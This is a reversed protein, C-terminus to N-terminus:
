QVPAQESDMPEAFRWANKGSRKAAYMATDARRLLAMALDLTDPWEPQYLAIGVSATVTVCTEGLLIPEALREVIPGLQMRLLADFM